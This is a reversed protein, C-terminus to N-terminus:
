PFFQAQTICLVSRTRPAKAPDFLKIAGHHVHLQQTEWLSADSGDPPHDFNQALGAFEADVRFNNNALMVQRM